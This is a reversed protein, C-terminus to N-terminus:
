CLLAVPFRGLVTGLLPGPAGRYSDPTLVEGTFVNQYCGGALYPPLLLCTQGWVEPGMPPRESEDALQVVLRPVVVIVGAEDLSRAFACVHDRKIGTADLPLYAGRTFVAEQARRLGLTQYLLYAKIQGDTLNALLEESLPTLDCGARAIRDQLA